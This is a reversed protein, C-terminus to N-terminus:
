GALAQDAKESRCAHRGRGRGDAPLVELGEDLGLEGAKSWRGRRGSVAIELLQKPPQQILAFDIAVRHLPHTWGLEVLAGGTMGSSVM